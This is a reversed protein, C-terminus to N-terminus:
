GRIFYIPDKEVSSSGDAKVTSRTCTRARELVLRREIKRASNQHRWSQMKIPKDKGPYKSGRTISHCFYNSAIEMNEKGKDLLADASAVEQTLHLSPWPNQLDQLHWRCACTYIWSKCLLTISAGKVVRCSNICFESTQSSRGWILWPQYISKLVSCQFQFWLMIRVSEVNLKKSVFSSLYWFNLLNAWVKIM